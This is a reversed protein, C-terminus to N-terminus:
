LMWSTDEEEVIELEWWDVRPGYEGVGVCHGMWWAGPKVGGDPNPVGCYTRWKEGLLCKMDRQKVPLAEFESKSVKLPAPHYLHCEGKRLRLELLM